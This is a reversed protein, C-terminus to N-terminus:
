KLANIGFLVSELRIQFTWIKPKLTLAKRLHPNTKINLAEKKRITTERSRKRVLRNKRIETGTGAVVERVIGLDLGNAATGTETEQAHVVDKIGLVPAVDKATGAGIETGIEIEIVTGKVIRTKIRKKRRTGM